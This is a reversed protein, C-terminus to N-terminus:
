VAPTVRIIYKLIGDTSVPRRQTVQNRHRAAIDIVQKAIHDVVLHRPQCRVLLRRCVLCIRAM